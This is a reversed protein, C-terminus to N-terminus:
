YRNEREFYEVDKDMGLKREKKKCKEEKKDDKNYCVTSGACGYLFFFLFCVLKM